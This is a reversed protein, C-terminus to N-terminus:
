RTRDSFDYLNVLPGTKSSLTPPSPVLVDPDKIGERGVALTSM